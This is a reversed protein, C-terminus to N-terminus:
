EDEIKPALHFKLNSKDGLDYEVLLPYENSLKVEVSDSLKQPGSVRKLFSVAFSVSVTEGEDIEYTDLQDFQIDVTMSTDDGKANLVISEETCEIGVTDAFGGLQDVLQAFTKSPMALEASYEFEPVSLDTHDVVSLLALTFQKAFVRKSQPERVVFSVSANDSDDSHSFVIKQDDHTQLVRLLSASSVTIHAPFDVAYHSFWAASLELQFMCVHSPDMGELVLGDAGFAFSYTDTFSRLSTFLSVFKACKDKEDIEFKVMDSNDTM